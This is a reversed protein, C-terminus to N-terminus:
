HRWLGSIEGSAVYGGRAHLGNSRCSGSRNREATGSGRNFRPRRQHRNGFDRRLAVSRCGAVAVTLCQRLREIHHGPGEEATEVLGQERRRPSLGHRPERQRAATERPSTSTWAPKGGANLQEDSSASTLAKTPLPGLDPPGPGKARLLAHAQREINQFALIERPYIVVADSWTAGTCRLKGGDIREVTM